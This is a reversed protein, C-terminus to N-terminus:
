ANAWVNINRRERERLTCERLQEAITDINRVGYIIVEPTQRDTSKLRLLGYGLLKMEFPKQVEFDDIRFLEINQQTKSFIGREFKIRQTTIYYKLSLSNLWYSFLALGFTLLVAFLQGITYVAAPHGVYITEEEASGHLDAGCFRCKVAAAKITEACMPCNKTEEDIM